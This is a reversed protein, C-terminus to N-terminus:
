TGCCIPVDTRICQKRGKTQKEWLLLARRALFAEYLRTAQTLQSVDTPQLNWEERRM